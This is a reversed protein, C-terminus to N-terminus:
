KKKCRSLLESEDNNLLSDNQTLEEASDCGSEPHFLVSYNQTLEETSDICTEYPNLVSYNQTMEEASDTDGSTPQPESIHKQKQIQIRYNIRKRRKKQECKSENETPFEYVVCLKRCLSLLEIESDNLYVQPIDKQAPVKKRRINNSKPSYLLHQGLRTRKRSDTHQIKSNFIKTMGKPSKATHQHNHLTSKAMINDGDHVNNQLNEDSMKNPIANSKLHMSHVHDSLCEKSNIKGKESAASASGTALKSTKNPNNTFGHQGLNTGSSEM